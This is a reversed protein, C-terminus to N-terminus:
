IYDRMSIGQRIIKAPVGAVATNDQIDEIVVANAGIVVNNGVKIPGLVKSGAGMYVNNGIVPVDIKKSRGGITVQQSIICNQGIKSREHIVVGMGGYGFRTSEGIECKYPIYSNYVLFIIGQIIEAIPILHKTYCWRAVRYLNIANFM